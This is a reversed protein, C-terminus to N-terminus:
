ERVEAEWGDFVGGLSAALTELRLRVAHIGNERRCWERTRASVAVSQRRRRRGSRRRHLGGRTRHERRERGRHADPLLSLLAAGDGPGHGRRRAGTRRSTAEDAEEGALTAPAPTSAVPASISHAEARARVPAREGRTQGTIAFRILITFLVIGNLFLLAMVPWALHAAPAAVDVDNTQQFLQVAATALILASWGAVLRLAIRFRQPAALGLMFVLAM